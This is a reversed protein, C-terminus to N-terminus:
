SSAWVAKAANVANILITQHLNEHLKCTAAERQGNIAPYGEPIDELIIPDPKRIYRVSYSSVPLKSVLESYMQHYDIEDGDMVAEAYSLRLVRRKNPGKFPNRYTRWFEDQTVPVIIADREGCDGLNLKCSEYTRFLLDEPLQYVVSGSIIHYLSAAEAVPCDAQSVLPSLYDTVEETSEFPVSITGNYIGIVTLEEGRTLFVSKEYPNLGPAQNSMINNWLIDFEASWETTSTM